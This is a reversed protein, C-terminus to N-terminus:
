PRSNYTQKFFTYIISKIWPCALVILAVCVVFLNVVVCRKNAKTEEVRKWKKWWLMKNNKNQKMEEDTLRQQKAHVASCSSLLIRM